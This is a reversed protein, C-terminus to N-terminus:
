SQGRGHQAPRAPLHGSNLATPTPRGPPALGVYKDRFKYDSTRGALFLPLLHEQPSLDKRQPLRMRSVHGGKGLTRVESFVCAESFRFEVIYNHNYVM